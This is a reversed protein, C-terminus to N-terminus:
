TRGEKNKLWDWMAASAYGSYSGNLKFVSGTIEPHSDDKIGLSVSVDEAIGDHAVLFVGDRIKYADSFMRRVIEEAKIPSPEELVVIYIAM